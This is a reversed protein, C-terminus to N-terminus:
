LYVVLLGVINFVLMAVAYQKWSMDEDARIGSLRYLVRELPAGVRHIRTPEDSFVAAMYLGVPKVLLLTLVVYFGIQLYDNLTMRVVGAQPARPHSLRDPGARHARIACLPHERDFGAVPAIPM